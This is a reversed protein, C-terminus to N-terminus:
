DTRDNIKKQTALKNLLMSKQKVMKNSGALSIGSSVKKGLTPIPTAYIGKANSFDNNLSHQGMSDEFDAGERVSALENNFSEQLYRLHNIQFYNDFRICNIFNKHGVGRFIPIADM